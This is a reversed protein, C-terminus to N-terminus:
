REEGLRKSREILLNIEKREEAGREYGERYENIFPHRAWKFRKCLLGDKYGEQRMGRKRQATKSM